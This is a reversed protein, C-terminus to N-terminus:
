RMNNKQNELMEGRYDFYQNRIDSHDARQFAIMPYCVFCNLLKQGTVFLWQDIQHVNDKGPSWLNLMQERGKASWLMAHTTHVGGTIQYLNESYRIAPTKVNAGLYFLDFDDPLQEVAAEFFSRAYPEFTVDDEFIFLNGEGKLCEYHSLACGTEGGKIAPFRYIHAFGFRELEKTTDKMREPRSDLNIVKVTFDTLKM